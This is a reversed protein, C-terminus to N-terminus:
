VGSCTSKTSCRRERLLPHKFDRLVFPQRRCGVVACEGREPVVAARPPPSTEGDGAQTQDPGRQVRCLSIRDLNVFAEDLALGDILCFPEVIQWNQCIREFVGTTSVRCDKVVATPGTPVAPSAPNDIQNEALLSLGSGM